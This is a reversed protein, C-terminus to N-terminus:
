LIGKKIIETEFLKAYRIFNFIESDDYKYDHCKVEDPAEAVVKCDIVYTEDPIEIPILIKM